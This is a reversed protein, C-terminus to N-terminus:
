TQPLTGIEFFSQRKDDLAKFRVRPKFEGNVINVILFKWNCDCLDDSQSKEYSPLGKTQLYGMAGKDDVRKDM